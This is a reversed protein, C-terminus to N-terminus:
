YKIKIKCSFKEMIGPLVGLTAQFATVAASSASGKKWNDGAGVTSSDVAGIEIVLKMKQNRQEQSSVM